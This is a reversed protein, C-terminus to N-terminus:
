NFVVFGVSVKNTAASTLNITFRGKDAVVNRIQATADNTRLVPIILSDPTVTSNNVTVSKGGAAINVIGSPKSITQNGTKASPMVTRALKLTGAGIRVQAQGISLLEDDAHNTFHLTGAENAWTIETKGTKDTRTTTKGDMGVKYTTVGSANEARLFDNWSATDWDKARIAADMAGKNANLVLGYYDKDRGNLVGYQNDIQHMVTRGDDAYETIMAEREAIFGVGDIAAVDIVQGATASKTGIRPGGNRVYILQGDVEGAQQTTVWDKKLISLSQAYDANAAGNAGSGEPVAYLHQLALNHGKHPGALQGYLIQKGHRADSGGFLSAPMGPSDFQWLVSTEPPTFRFRYEGYPFHVVGGGAKAAAASARNVAVTDDASNDGKAGYRKVNHTAENRSDIVSPPTEVTRAYAANVGVVM